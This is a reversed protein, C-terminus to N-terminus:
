SRRAAERMVDVPPERGTWIRLSEAGQRVLVEIGDVVAAGSRRAAMVLPTEAKGYPLDVVTQGQQLDGEALPLESFPDEGALGVSTSNVILEYDAGRPDEVPSGGLESCLNSSRLTTRNWVDVRAGERVLAWVVARAAGGAGLILARKGEPSDPLAALLGAADTNYAHPVGDEFVFTNAAGVERAVESLEEAVALAAGKHPVTVNAGAYGSEAMSRVLAEFGDPAVDIAEYSWDSLGLERLAANHMAPSRSHAVPHGLVALRRGSTASAM